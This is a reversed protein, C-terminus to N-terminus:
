PLLTQKEQKNTQLWNKSISATWRKEVDECLLGMLFPRFNESALQVRPFLESYVWEGHEATSPVYGSAWSAFRLKTLLETTLVGLSWMDVEKTYSLATQWFEPAIYVITGTFTQM